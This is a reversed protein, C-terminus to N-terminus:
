SQPVEGGYHKECVRWYACNNRSCLNSNRNPLYVCTKMAERTLPYQRDVATYDARTLVRTHRIIQPVKTRVLTYIRAVGLAGPTLRDYTALQFVHSPELEGPRRKATKIDIVRGDIDLIDVRGQVAVGGITGSVKCEVAVPQIDPAADAMFLKILAAGDNEIVSATEDDRFETDLQIRTWELTFQELVADVPLDLRSDLKYAMDFAIAAHVAIGLALSSTKPEPINELYKFAWRAPCDQFTRVQTPSLKDSPEAPEWVVGCRACEVENANPRVASVHGCDCTFNYVALAAM